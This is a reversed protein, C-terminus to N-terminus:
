AMTVIGDDETVPVIKSPVCMCYAVFLIVTACVVSAATIIVPINGIMIGYVLNLINTAFDACLRNISLENFNKRIFSHRVQSAMGVVTCASGTYGIIASIDPSM